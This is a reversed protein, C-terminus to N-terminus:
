GSWPPSGSRTFCYGPTDGLIGINSIQDGICDLRTAGPCCGQLLLPLEHHARREHPRELEAAVSKGADLGHPLYGKVRMLGWVPTNLQLSLTFTSLHGPM